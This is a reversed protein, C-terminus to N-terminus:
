VKKVISELLKNLEDKTLMADIELHVKMQDGNTIDLQDIKIVPEVGANKKILKSIVSSIFGKLLGSRIHMEDMEVEKIVEAYHEKFVEKTIKKIVEKKNKEM